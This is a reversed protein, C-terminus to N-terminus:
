YNGSNIRAWVDATEARAIEGLFCNEWTNDSFSINSCYRGFYARAGSISRPMTEGADVTNAAFVFGNANNVNIVSGPFETFKNGSIEINTFPQSVATKGAINSGVTIVEGTAMYDCFDFENNRIILRDVGTGEYWLGPQIDMVIKIAQMETKYFRNNECLGNPSQLLFGRARNEHIYNDRIVYEDSSCSTNYAIFGKEAGEPAERFVVDYYPEEPDYHYEASEIEATIDASNFKGDRFALIDGSRILMANGNIRFKRGDIENVVGLGDHVNLADDGQGSIDCGSINFCGDSNVIHIADAGLSTFREGKKAPDVGIYTNIIQFHSAKGGIVFGAGPYGFLSIGDITINRSEGNISMFNRDYVYHRLIFTDGNEFHDFGGNHEIKLTNGSLKTVSRIQQPDMYIYSEKNSYKAGYTFTEPDCQSIAAFIMDTSVERDGKFELELTNNKPDANKVTVIDSLPKKEWDWDVTLGSFEVCDCESIEFATEVQSFILSTGKGEILIDKAGRLTLISTNNLYYAGKNIVLRTGPNKECYDLAKKLAPFNDQASADMGFESANVEALKGGPREIFFRSGGAGGIEDYTRMENYEPTQETLVDGSREFEAEKSFIFSFLMLVSAIFASIRTLM